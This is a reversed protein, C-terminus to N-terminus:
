VGAWSINIALLSPYTARIGTPASPVSVGQENVISSAPGYGAANSASIRFYFRTETAPLGTIALSTSSAALTVTCCAGIQSTMCASTCPSSCTVTCAMSSTGYSREVRVATLARSQDGVGTNTPLTWSLAIQNPLSVSAAPALVQSPLAVAQEFTEAHTGFGVQNAARVRVVYPLKRASAFTLVTATPCSATNACAQDLVVDFTAFDSTYGSGSV